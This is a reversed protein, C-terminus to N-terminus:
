HYKELAIITASSACQWATAVYCYGGPYEDLCWGDATPSVLHPRVEAKWFDFRDHEFTWRLPEGVDAIVFSSGSQLLLVFESEGLRGLRQADLIGENNWLEVLPTCTVIRRAPDM